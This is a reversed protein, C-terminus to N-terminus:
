ALEDHLQEACLRAFGSVPARNLPLCGFRCRPSSRSWLFKGIAREVPSESWLAGALQVNATKSGAFDQRADRSMRRVHWLWAINPRATNRATRLTAAVDEVADQGSQEADPKGESGMIGDDRLWTRGTRTEIVEAM